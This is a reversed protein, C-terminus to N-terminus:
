RYSKTKLDRSSQIKAMGQPLFNQTRLICQGSEVAIQVDINMDVAEPQISHKKGQTTTPLGLTDMPKMTEMKAPESKSLQLESRNESLDDDMYSTSYSGSTTSNEMKEEEITKADLFKRKIRLSEPGTLSDTKKRFKELMSHRFEKFRMLELQRLKQREKEITPENANVSILDTVLLSQEHM